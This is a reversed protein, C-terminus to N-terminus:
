FFLAIAVFITPTSTIGHLIGSILLTTVDQRHEAVTFMRLVNFIVGVIAGIVAMKWLGPKYALIGGLFGWYFVGEGVHFGINTNLRHRAELLGAFLGIIGGSAATLVTTLVISM